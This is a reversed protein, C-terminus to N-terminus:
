ITSFDFGPSHPRYQRCLSQVEPMAKTSCRFSQRGIHLRLVFSAYVLRKMMEM